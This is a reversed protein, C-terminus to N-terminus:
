RCVCVTPVQRGQGGPYQPDPVWVGAKPACRQECRRQQEQVTVGNKVMLAALCVVAIVVVIVVGRKKM